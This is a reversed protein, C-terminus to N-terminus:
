FRHGGVSLTGLNWDSNGTWDLRGTVGGLLQQLSPGGRLGGAALGGRGVVLGRGGRQVRGGGQAGQM